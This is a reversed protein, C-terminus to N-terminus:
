SSLGIAQALHQYRTPAVSEGNVKAMDRSPGYDQLISAEYSSRHSGWEEPNRSVHPNRQFFRDTGCLVKGGHSTADGEYVLNKM